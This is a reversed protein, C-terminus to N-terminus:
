GKSPIIVLFMQQALNLLWMGSLSGSHRINLFWLLLTDYERQNIEFLPWTPSVRICPEVKWGGLVLQFIGCFAGHPLYPGCPIAENTRKTLRLM